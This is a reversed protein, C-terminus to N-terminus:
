CAPALVPPGRRPSTRRLVDQPGPCPRELPPVRWMPPLPAPSPATLLALLTALGRWSLAAAARLVVFTAVEGRWLWAAALLAIFTHLALLLLIQGAALAALSQTPHQTAAGLLGPRVSGGGCVLLGPWGGSTTGPTAACQEQASNFLANLALEVPILLGAIQPYRREGGTLLLALGLVAAGAVLLTVLPLPRGTVVLHGGASLLVALVAFVVARLTRLGGGASM